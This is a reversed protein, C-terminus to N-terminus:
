RGLMQRVMDEVAPSLAPPAAPAAAPAAAAPDAAAPITAPGSQGSAVFPPTVEPQEIPIPIEVKIIPYDGSLRLYGQRDRLGSIESPLVAREISIQESEGSHGGGAGTGESQVRRSLQQEGLLRSCWDSTEPDGARLILQSSFCSLLTQAGHPGYEGRLQAVTQLGAVSCLGFKRGQTLALALSQVRGLAALEDMLLWLRRDRDPRLALAASVAEGIWASILPRMAAMMDTRVPIWLWGTGAEVWRRISFSGAGASPPLFRYAPLCSGVVARVCGLMREAGDSFLTIAATGEAIGRLEDDGAVTLARVLEANTTRGSEWSRLLVASVLNQSYLQWQQAAQDGDVDPIMSKAVRDIDHAATIEAFPSWSASRSDLPNLITDGDRFLRSMMEGGPDVVIARDSARERVAGALASMALSKGTGTSGELLLHQPEINRPIPVGGITIDGDGSAHAHKGVRAGRTIKPRRSEERAAANHEKHKKSHRVHLWLVFPSIGMVWWVVALVPPWVAALAVLAVLAAGWAALLRHLYHDRHKLKKPEKM